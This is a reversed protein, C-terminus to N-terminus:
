PAAVKRRTQNMMPLFEKRAMVCISGTGVAKGVQRVPGGPTLGTKMISPTRDAPCSHNM